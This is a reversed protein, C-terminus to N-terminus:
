KIKIYFVDQTEVLLKAFEFKGGETNIFVM